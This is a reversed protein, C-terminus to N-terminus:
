GCEALPYRVPGAKQSKLPSGAKGRNHKLPLTGWDKVSNRGNPVVPIVRSETEEDGFWPAAPAKPPLVVYKKLELMNSLAVLGHHWLAYEARSTIISLPSPSWKLPCYSGTSYINKGKCEGILAVGGGNRAPTRQVVPQEDWYDPRTGKVAHRTVLASLNVTNLMLVDRPRDHAPRAGDEGFFAKLAKTGREGWAVNTSRSADPRREMDNVSVLGSLEGAIVDLSLNWDIEVEGLSAVAIEVAEADPDPLGFHSYRQAAGHGKDIGGHNGYDEIRDWIGEAASTQRKSLEEVYSWVLLKEVDIEIKTV